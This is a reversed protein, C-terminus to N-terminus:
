KSKEIILEDSESILSDIISIEGNEKNLDLLLWGIKEVDSKKLKFGLFFDSTLDSYITWNEDWEYEYVGENIEGILNGNISMLGAEYETWIANSDSHMRITDGETLFLYNNSIDNLRLLKNENLPKFKRVIDINSTPYDDTMAIVNIIEFDYQGDNNIDISKEEPVGGDLQSLAQEYPTKELDNDNKECSLFFLSTILAIFIFKM